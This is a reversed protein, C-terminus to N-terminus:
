IDTSGMQEQGTNTSKRPAWCSSHQWLMALDHLFWERNQEEFGVRLWALPDPSRWGQGVSGRLSLAHWTKWSHYEHFDRCSEQSEMTKSSEERLSTNTVASDERGLLATVPTDRLSNRDRLLPQKREGCPFPAPLGELLHVPDATLQSFCSLLSLNFDCHKLLPMHPAPDWVPVQPNPKTQNGETRDRSGGAWSLSKGFPIKTMEM